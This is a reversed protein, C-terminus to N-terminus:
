NLKRKKKKSFYSLIHVYRKGNKIPINLRKKNSFRKLEKYIRALDVKRIPRRSLKGHDDQPVSM